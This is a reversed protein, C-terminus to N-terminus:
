ISKGKKILLSSLIYKVLITILVVISIYINPIVIRKSFSNKFISIGLFIIFMSIILSTIYEIKGHGKPHGADAPKNSLHSGIIAVVDTILDSLSHIGDAILSKASGLLGFVIKIVSLFMNACLSVIM